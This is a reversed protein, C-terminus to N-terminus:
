HANLTMADIHRDVLATYRICLDGLVFLVNNRVAASTCLKPSLDRVLVAIFRKALGVDRLCIKGICLYALARVGDPVTVATSATASVVAPTLAPAMLSQVLTILRESIIVSVMRRRSEKSTASAESSTLSMASESAGQGADADLGILSLEGLTFLASSLSTGTAVASSPSVVFSRL